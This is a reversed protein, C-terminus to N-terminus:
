GNSPDLSPSQSSEEMTGAVNAMGQKNSADITAKRQPATPRALQTLVRRSPSSHKTQSHLRKQQTNGLPHAMSAAGAMAITSSSRM